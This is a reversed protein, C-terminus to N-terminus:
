QSNEESEWVQPAKATKAVFKLALPKTKKVLEDGILKIEHSQLNSIIIELILTNLDKAEQIVIVKPIYRVLLSRLVNKVHNYMSYNKNLVMKMKVLRDREVDLPISAMEWVWDMVIKVIEISFSM